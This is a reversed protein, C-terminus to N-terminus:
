FSWFSVEFKKQPGKWVATKRTRIFILLHFHVHDIASDGGRDAHAWKWFYGSRSYFNVPIYFTLYRLCPLCQESVIPHPEWSYPPHYPVLHTSLSSPLFIALHFTNKGILTNHSPHTTIPPSTPLPTPRPILPVFWAWPSGGLQVIQVIQVCSFFM